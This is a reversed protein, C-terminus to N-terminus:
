AAVQIRVGELFLIDFSIGLGRISSFEVTHHRDRATDVALWSNIGYGTSETLQIDESIFGRIWPGNCVVLPCCASVAPMGLVDPFYDCLSCWLRKPFITPLLMSIM